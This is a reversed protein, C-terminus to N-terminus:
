VAARKGGYSRLHPGLISPARVGDFLSEMAGHRLLGMDAVSGAGAVMRAVLFVHRADGSLVHSLRLPGLAAALLDM